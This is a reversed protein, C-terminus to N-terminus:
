QKGNVYVRFDGKIQEVKVPTVGMGREGIDNCLNPTDKGTFKKREFSVAAFKKGTVLNSPAHFVMDSYPVDSCADVNKMYETFAMLSDGFKNGWMSSDAQLSAIKLDKGDKERSVYAHWLSDDTDDRQVSFYLTKGFELMKQVSVMCRAGPGHDVGKTCTGSVVKVGKGFMSFNAHWENRKSPQILGIYARPAASHATPKPEIFWFQYAFFYGQGTKPAQNLTIPFVMKSAGFMVPQWQYTVLHFPARQQTATSAQVPLQLLVTTCLLLLVCFKKMIDGM